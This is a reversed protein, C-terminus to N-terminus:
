KHKLWFVTDCVSEYINWNYYPKLMLAMAKPGKVWLMHSDWSTEEPYMHCSLFQLCLDATIEYHSSKKGKKKLPTHTWPPVRWLVVREGEALSVCSDPTQAKTWWREWKPLCVQTLKFCLSCSGYHVVGLAELKWKILYKGLNGPWQHHFVLRWVLHTCLLRFLLTKKNCLKYTHLLFTHATHIKNIILFQSEINVQHSVWNSMVLCIECRLLFQKM